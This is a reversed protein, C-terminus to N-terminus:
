CSSVSFFKTVIRCAIFANKPKFKLIFKREYNNFISYSSYYPALSCLTIEGALITLGPVANDLQLTQNSGDARIEFKLLDTTMEMAPNIVKSLKVKLLFFFFNSKLYNIKKTNKKVAYELEKKM